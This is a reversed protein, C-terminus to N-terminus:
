AISGAGTSSLLDGAPLDGGDLSAIWADTSAVAGIVAHLTALTAVHIQEASAQGATNGYTLAGTADGLVEVRFGAHAAQRATTDVCVNTMYGVISVTDVRHERLWSELGTGTFAGPLHKHFVVAHERAAVAPHLTWTDSGTAFIPAGAPTDHQIVVVPVGAVNAADIARGINALSSDVPPFEIPLRGTFYENQVDVVVLARTTM